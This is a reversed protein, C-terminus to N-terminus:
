PPARGAGSRPRTPANRGSCGHTRHWGRDARSAAIPSAEAAPPSVTAPVPAKAVARPRLASDRATGIGYTRTGRACGGAAGQMSVPKPHSARASPACHRRLAPRASQCSDAGSEKSGTGVAPRCGGESAASTVGIRRARRQHWATTAAREVADAGADRSRAKRLKRSGACPMEDGVLEQDSRSTGRAALPPRRGLESGGNGSCRDSDRAAAM